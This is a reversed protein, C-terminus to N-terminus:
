SEDRRKKKKKEEGYKKWYLEAAQSLLIFWQSITVNKPVCGSNQPDGNTWSWLKDPYHTQKSISGTDSLELTPNM